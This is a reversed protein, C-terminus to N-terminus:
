ETVVGVVEEETLTEEEAPNSFDGVPSEEQMKELILQPNEVFPLLTLLTERDVFGDLKNILDAIDQLNQPLNRTFQIKLLPINVEKGITLALVGNLAKCLQYLAKKFKSEKAICKNELGLLKYQISVGSLNAGFKEDSMNPIDTFNHIDEQLKNLHATIATDQITKTIFKADGDEGVEITGGASLASSAEPTMMLNKLMLYANRYAEHENSTDSMLKDYADILGLVKEFDGQEEKNNQFVILPNTKFIHPVIHEEYRADPVLDGDYMYYYIEKDTYIEVAYIDERVTIDYETLLSYIRATFIKKRKTDTIYFLEEAPIQMLNTVGEEDQYILMGSKGAISCEKGIELLLDDFDNSKLIATIAEQVDIDDDLITVPNGLFYAVATDTIKAPHACVLRNNPKNERTPRNLIEHKAKYYGHLERIRPVDYLLHKNIASVVVRKDVKFPTLDNIYTEAM